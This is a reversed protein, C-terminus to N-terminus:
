AAEHASIVQLFAQAYRELKKEGVGPIEAFETVDRPCRQAMEALSADHFIVYPPM